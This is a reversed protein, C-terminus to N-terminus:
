LFVLHRMRNKFAEQLEKKKELKKIVVTAGSWMNRVSNRELSSVPFHTSIVAAEWLEGRM